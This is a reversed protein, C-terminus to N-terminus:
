SDLYTKKQYEQAKTLNNLYEVLESLVVLYFTRNGSTAGKVEHTAGHFPRLNINQNYLLPVISYKGRWEDGTVWCVVLDIDKEQKEDKEFEELLSDMNVKYELVWPHSIVPENPINLIGLPNMDKNYKHNDMPPVISIKCLSDYQLRQDTAMIRIGRIVGGAILQNFLVIVDQEKQPTSLISIEKMPLFFNENEIKLPHDIQYKEQDVKWTFVDKSAGIDLDSGEGKLLPRWAKLYNVIAASVTKALDEVDPQFGKRGYDPDANKFQVVVHSTKQYGTSKTLPIVLLNGQPMNCTALQLGGDLIRYGRRLKYETDNLYDWIKVSYGFFGYFIPDLEEMLKKQQDNLVPKITERSLMERKNWIEYIGDLNRFAGPIQTWQDKGHKVADEQAARIASLKATSPIVTHPYLYECKETIKETRKGDKDMVIIHCKIKPLNSGLYVGGLPTKARLIVDWQSAEEAQMYTLDKPRIGEGILKVCFTSGRDVRQVFENNVEIDKVKPTESGFPSEVWRRGDNIVAYGTFGPIKTGMELHNFGYALFTAGVGKNGRSVGSNKFSVNPSLFSRFEDLSFGIGNDTVKIEKNQLDIEIFITPQYTQGETLARKDVADLANQILESYLDFYGTYSRLLNRIQRKKADNQMAENFETALPDWETM